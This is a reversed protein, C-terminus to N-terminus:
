LNYCRSPKKGIKKLYKIVYIECTYMNTWEMVKNKCALEFFRNFSSGNKKPVLVYQHGRSHVLPNKLYFLLVSGLYLYKLNWGYVLPLPLFSDASAFAGEGKEGGGVCM